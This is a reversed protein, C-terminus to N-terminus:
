EPVGADVPMAPVKALWAWRGSASEGHGAFALNSDVAINDGRHNSILYGTFVEEAGANTAPRVFSLRRERGNWFGTVDVPQAAVTLRGLWNGDLDAQKIELKGARGGIEVDWVPIMPMPLDPWRSMQNILANVQFNAWQGEPADLILDGPWAKNSNIWFAASIDDSRHVMVAQACALGGNKCYAQVGPPSNERPGGIGEWRDPDWLGGSGRPPKPHPAPDGLRDKRVSHFGALLEVVAPASMLLGGTGIGNEFNVHGFDLPVPPLAQQSSRPTVWDEMLPGLVDYRTEEVRRYKQLSRVRYARRIGLPSFLLERAVQIYPKGTVQEIVYTLLVHNFNAYGSATGPTGKPERSLSYAVAQELTVPFNARPRGNARVAALVKDDEGAPNFNAADAQVWGSAHRLLHSLTIKNWKSEAPPASGDLRTLRVADKLLTHVGKDDGRKFAGQDALKQVIMNTIEKSCSAIRCLTTPQTPATAAPAINTNTYGRAFVLQGKRAIALAGASFGGRELGRSMFNDFVAFEPVEIGTKITPMPEGMAGARRSM